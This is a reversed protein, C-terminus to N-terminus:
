RPNTVSALNSTDTTLQIGDDIAMEKSHVVSEYAEGTDEAGSPDRIPNRSSDLRAVESKNIAHRLPIVIEKLPKLNDPGAIAHKLIPSASLQGITTTNPANTDDNIADNIALNQMTSKVWTDELSNFPNVVTSPVRSTASETHEVQEVIRGPTIQLNNPETPQKTRDPGYIDHGLSLESTKNAGVTVNLLNGAHQIVHEKVISSSKQARPEETERYVERTVQLGARGESVGVLDPDGLVTAMNNKIPRPQHLESNMSQNAIGLGGDVLVLQPQRGIAPPALETVADHIARGAANTPGEQARHSEGTNGVRGATARQPTGLGTTNWGAMAHELRARGPETAGSADGITTAGRSGRFYTEEEGRDGTVTTAPGELNTTETIADM